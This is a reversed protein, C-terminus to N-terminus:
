IYPTAQQIGLELVRWASHHDYISQDRCMAWVYNVSEINDEGGEIIKGKSDKMISVQQAQFTLILVPGQEMIKAMVLDVDRIDLIRSENVLGQASNNKIQTSLISFVGEHCWDQLCEIDGRLYAELVTPIIEFECEKIFKDKNFSPDIKTIEAITAAQESQSFVDSFVDSLKNTVVRTARIIVNDSEDYKTKLSFLGTVVPNNDRFNKWQEQWKSDKHLVVEQEDTNAEIKKEAKNLQTRRKLHEPRQYPRSEKAIDDFLDEKVKSFAQSATKFTENKEIEESHKSITSAAQKVSKGLEYVGEQGKKFIESKTADEYLKEVTKSVTGASSKVTGEVQKLYPSVQEKIRNVTSLKLKAEKIADSEDFKKAEEKFKKLNEQMQKDRKLGEQINEIFRSILGKKEPRRQYYRVQQNHLCRYCLFLYLNSKPTIFSHVVIQNKDLIQLWKLSTM